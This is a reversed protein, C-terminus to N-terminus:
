EVKYQIDILIPTAYNVYPYLSVYM